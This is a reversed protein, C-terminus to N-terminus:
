KHVIMKAVMVKCNEIQCLTLMEPAIVNAAADFTVFVQYIKYLLKRNYLYM